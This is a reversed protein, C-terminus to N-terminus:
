LGRFVETYYDSMQEPTEKFDSKIWYKLATIFLEIALSKKLDLPISDYEKVPYNNYYSDALVILHSRFEDLFIDNGKSSMIGTILEKEDRIHYFIHTILHKYNFVADKSFDHTKEEQLSHSFVHDFIDKSIKLLLENKTKFHCYFTSRGINSEDLIDQITIDDYDKNNILNTFARYIAELTKVQRKDM